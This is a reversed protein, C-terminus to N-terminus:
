KRPRKVNHRVRSRPAAREALAGFDVSQSRKDMRHLTANFDDFEDFDDFADIRSRALRKAKRVAKDKKTEFLRTFNDEEYQQREMEDDDVENQFDVGYVREESPKDSFEDRLSRLLESSKAKRRLREKDKLMEKERNQIEEYEVMRNRPPVYIGAAEKQSDAQSRTSDSEIKGTSDEEMAEPNPAFSLADQQDIAKNQAVNNARLLKDIQYKLKKEIPTIKELIIRNEVLKLVLNAHEEETLGNEAALKNGIFIALCQCYEALVEAKTQLLSIGESTPVEGSEIREMADSLKEITPALESGLPAVVSLVQAAAASM